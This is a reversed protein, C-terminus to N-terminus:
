FACGMAFSSRFGIGFSGGPGFIVPLSLFPEIFFGNPAGVDIKWGLGPEVLLGLPYYNWVLVSQLGFGLGLELFFVGQGPYFRGIGKVGANNCILIL